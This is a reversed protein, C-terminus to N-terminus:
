APMFLTIHDLANGANIDQDRLTTHRKNNNLLLVQLPSFSLPGELFFTTNQNTTKPESM